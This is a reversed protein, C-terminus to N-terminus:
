EKTWYPICLENSCKHVRIYDDGARLWLGAGLPGSRVYRGPHGFILYSRSDDVRAEPTNAPLAAHAAQLQALMSAGGLSRDVEVAVLGIVAGTPIGIDADPHAHAWTRVTDPETTPPEVGPWPCGGQFPCVPIGACTFLQPAVVELSAPVLTNPLM